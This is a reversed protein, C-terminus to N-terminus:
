CDLLTALEDIGRVFFADDPDPEEVKPEPGWERPRAVYATKLGHSRAAALDAAHTAVMMVEHPAVGTLRAIGLYVEASPKYHGWLDAGGIVDWPLDASEAMATLLSVHGNSLAAITYKSKLRHLGASSDPWGPLVHWARVAEDLQNATAVVGYESRLLGDLTIRHLDDLVTFPREGSEVEALAPGYCRRWDRALRSADLAPFVQALTSSVGTHWDAVTGFTDFALVKVDAVGIEANGAATM